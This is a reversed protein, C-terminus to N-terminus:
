ATKPVTSQTLSISLRIWIFLIIFLIIITVIKNKNCLFFNYIKTDFGIWSLGEIPTLIYRKDRKTNKIDSINCVDCEQIINLIQIVKLFKKQKRVRNIMIPGTSSMVKLHKGIMYFPPKIKMQRICELWFPHYKENSYMFSNTIVSPTNASRILCIPKKIINEIEDFSKNCVYDLDLYFGGKVYLICYRVADVRQINYEFSNYTELFDPFFTKVFERNEKDTYLKYEYGKNFNIITMQAEKWKDPVENTKWTQFIYKIMINYKISTKIYINAIFM